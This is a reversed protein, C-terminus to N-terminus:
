RGGRRNKWEQLGKRLTECDKNISLSRTLLNERSGVSHLCHKATSLYCNEAKLRQREAYPALRIIRVIRAETGPPWSHDPTVGLEKKLPILDDYIIKQCKEAYNQAIMMEVQAKYEKITGEDWLLYSEHSQSLVERAYNM